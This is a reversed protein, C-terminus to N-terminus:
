YQTTLFLSTNSFMQAPDGDHNHYTMSKSAFGRSEAAISLM